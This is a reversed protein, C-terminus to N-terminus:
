YNQLTFFSAVNPWPAFFFHGNAQMRAEIKKKGQTRVVM